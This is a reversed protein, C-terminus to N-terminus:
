RQGSAQRGELTKWIKYLLVLVAAHWAVNALMVVAFVLGVSLHQLLQMISTSALVAAPQCAAM